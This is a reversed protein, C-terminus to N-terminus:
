AWPRALAMRTTCTMQTGKHCGSYDIKAEAM